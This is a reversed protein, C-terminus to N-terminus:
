AEIPPLTLTEVFEMEAIHREYDMLAIPLLTFDAASGLQDAITQVLALPASHLEALMILYAQRDICGHEHYKDIM